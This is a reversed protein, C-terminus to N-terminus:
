PIRRGFGSPRRACDEVLEELRAEDQRRALIARAQAIRDDLVDLRVRCGAQERLCAALEAQVEALRGIARRRAVALEELRARQRARHRERGALSSGSRPGGGLLAAQEREMQLTLERAQGELQEVLRTLGDQEGRLRAIRRARGALEPLLRVRLHRLAGSSVDEPPM